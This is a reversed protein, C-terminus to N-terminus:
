ILKDSMYTVWRDEFELSMAERTLGVHGYFVGKRIRDPNSGFFDWDVSHMNTRIEKVRYRDLKLIQEKHKELLFKLDRLYVIQFHQLDLLLDDYPELEKKNRIPLSEDLVKELYDINM